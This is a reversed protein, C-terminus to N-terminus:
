AGPATRRVGVHRTLWANGLAHNPDLRDALAVFDGRRPYRAAIDGAEAAFVKGWHPRAGLPLLAAEILAVAAGVPEPAPHWTFHLALSDRGHAPSMWLGDAAVTRVESIQLAPRIADGIQAVAAIADAGVARDVLYESQLEDGNSPTFGIRFHPLRDFWPGADGRQPTCNVPDMGPVPHLDGAAPTGLHLIAPPVREDRDLREKFWAQRVTGDWRTFLSVSYACAMVDDLQELVSSWPLDESVWQRVRYTPELDLTVGVVAGLAGLGVVCGDFDRDGRTVRMLEGDARVIELTAVATGLGGNGVGSGHTGTAVAGAVTIHPLSALNALALGEAEIVPALEAYTMGGGVTVQRREVDIEVRPPLARMDILVDSDAIANFAHRSGLFGVRPSTRVIRRLEDLSGPRVIEGAYTHNGAWNGVERGPGRDHPATDDPVATL